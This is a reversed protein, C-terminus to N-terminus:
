PRPSPVLVPIEHGHSKLVFDFKGSSCAPYPEGRYFALGYAWNRDLWFDCVAGPTHEIEHWLGRASVYRDLIPFSVIKLYFGGAVLCLVLLTGAWARRALLTAALPAAMYFMETPGVRPSAGRFSIRGVELVRPLVQAVLPLMGILVASPLLWLRLRLAVRKWDTSAALLAFASPVLPLLYGPLKNLSISFVVFGFGVIAALFRRRQDWGNRYFFPLAALPTWPFLAGLLVPVYYWWPQVHQLSASYLREFHHKWFFEELFANGNRQYMAVYWPLAVAAAAILPLWWSRWWRRLFWCLPAALAIPVLGKALTAIGISLGILVLRVAYRHKEDPDVRLLPLALFIALSYFAALPLDTLALCSYALWGASTALLVSSIAAAESGFETRLLAFTVALFALSLIAVPLRGSAEPGLHLATGASIMWYLLPPKEFWANGWLKPTIFQGSQTM